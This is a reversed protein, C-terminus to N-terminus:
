VHNMPGRAMKKRSLQGPINKCCKEIISLFFLGKPCKSVIGLIAEHLESHSRIVCHQAKCTSVYVRTHVSLTLDLSRLTGYSHPETERTEARGVLARDGCSAQRSPRNQQTKM